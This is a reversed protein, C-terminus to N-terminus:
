RYIRDMMRLSRTKRVKAKVRKKIIRNIRTKELKGNGPDWKKKLIGEWEQIRIENTRREITIWLIKSQIQVRGEVTCVGAGRGIWLICFFHAAMMLVGVIEKGIDEPSHHSEFLNNDGFSSSGLSIKKEYHCYQKHKHYYNYYPLYNPHQLIKRCKMLICWWEVNYINEVDNDNHNDNISSLKEENPVNDDNVCDSGGYWVCVCVSMLLCLEVCIPVRNNASKSTWLVTSTSHRIRINKPSYYKSCFHQSM